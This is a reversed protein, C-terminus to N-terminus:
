APVRSKVLGAEKLASYGDSKGRNAFVELIGGVAVCKTRKPKPKAPAEEPEAKTEIIQIPAKAAQEQALRNYDLPQIIDDYNALHKFDGSRLAQLFPQASQLSDRAVSRVTKVTVEEGRGIERIQSLMYLKVAFDTIGQSEEHLASSIDENLPTKHKTFQYRWLSTLFIDWQSDKAMPRWVM